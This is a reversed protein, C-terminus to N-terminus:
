WGVKVSRSPCRRVVTPQSYTWLDEITVRVDADEPPAVPQPQAVHDSAAADTNGVASEM